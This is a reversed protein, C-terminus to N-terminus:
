MLHSLHDLTHRCMEEKKWGVRPNKNLLRKYINKWSVGEWEALAAALEPPTLQILDPFDEDSIQLEPTQDRIVTIAHMGISDEDLEVGVCTAPM